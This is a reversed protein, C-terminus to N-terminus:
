KAERVFEVTGKEASGTREATGVLKDGTVTLEFTMIRDPRPSVKITIKNDKITGEAIPNQRSVDPGISGTLVDGAQKLLAIGPEKLTKGDPTTISITVQWTGTFDAAFASSSLLLLLVALLSRIKM